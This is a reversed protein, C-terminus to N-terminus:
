TAASTHVIGYSVLMVSPQHPRASGYLSKRCLSSMSGIPAGAREHILSPVAYPDKFLSAMKICKRSSIPRTRSAYHIAPCALFRRRLGRPFTSPVNLSAM